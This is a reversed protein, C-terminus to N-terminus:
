YAIAPDCGPHRFANHQRWYAYLKDHRSADSVVGGHQPSQHFNPRGNATCQSTTSAPDREDGPCLRQHQDTGPQQAHLQRRLFFFNNVSNTIPANINIRAAAASAHTSVPLCGCTNLPLASHRRRQTASNVLNNNGAVLNITGGSLTTNQIFIISTATDSGSSVTVSERGATNFLATNFGNRSIIPDMGRGGCPGIQLLRYGLARKSRWEANILPASAAQAAAM